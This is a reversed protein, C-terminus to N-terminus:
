RFRPDNHSIYPRKEGPKFQINDYTYWVSPFYGNPLNAIYGKSLDKIKLLISREDFSDIGTLKDFLPGLLYEGFKFDFMFSHKITYNYDSIRLCKYDLSTIQSKVGLYNRLPLDKDVSEMDRAVILAINFQDDIAILTNQAHSEMALGHHVLPDFYYSVLPRFLCEFAFENIGLKSKKYLQIIIPDDDPSYIDKGFLSFAPILFLQKDTNRSYPIYERLIYGFEYIKGDKTPIHAVKGKEETLLGFTNNYIGSNIGSKLDKTVEYASLVHQYDM